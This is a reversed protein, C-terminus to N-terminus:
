YYSAVTPGFVTMDICPSTGCPYPALLITQLEVITPLRWDCHGAFGGTITAGDMSECDNLEGLFDTFATGDPDTGSSTWTYRNDKDHVTSDDTKKEWELGTQNDTVTGDGNDVFRVGSLMAKIADTDTDIRGEVAATDGETPCVGLGAKTEAKLFAEGFKTTCKALDPIGGTAEKAM